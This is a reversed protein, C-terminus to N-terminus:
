ELYTYGDLGQDLFRRMSVAEALTLRKRAVATEIEKQLNRRMDDPNFQV